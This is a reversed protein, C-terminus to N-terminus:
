HTVSLTNKSCPVPVQVAQQVPLIGTYGHAGVTMVQWSLVLSGPGISPRALSVSATNVNANAVEITGFQRLYTGTLGGNSAPDQPGVLQLSYSVANAAPPWAFDIEFPSPCVYTLQSFGVNADLTALAPAPLALAILWAVLAIIRVLPM